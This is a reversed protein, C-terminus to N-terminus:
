KKIDVQDAIAQEAQRVQEARANNEMVNVNFLARTLVYNVFEFAMRDSDIHLTGDKTVGVIVVNDLKDINRMLVQNPTEKTM